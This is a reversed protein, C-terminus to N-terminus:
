HHGRAGPLLRSQIEARYKLVDAEYNSRYKQSYSMTAARVEVDHSDRREDDAKKVQKDFELYLDDLDNALNLARKRLEPSPCSEIKQCLTELPPASPQTDRDSGRAKSKSERRSPAQQQANRAGPDASPFPPLIVVPGTVMEYLIGAYMITLIFLVIRQWKKREAWRVLRPWKEEIYEFTSALDILEKAIVSILVVGGVVILVIQRVTM